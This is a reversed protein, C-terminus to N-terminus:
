ATLMERPEAVTLTSPKPTLSIRLVSASSAVVPPWRFTEVVAQRGRDNAPVLTDTIAVAVLAVTSRILATRWHTKMLVQIAGIGSPLRGFTRWREESLRGACFPRLHRHCDHPRNSAM